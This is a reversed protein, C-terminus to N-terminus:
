REENKLFFDVAIELEFAKGRLAPPITAQAKASRLMAQAADDLVARGAGKKVGLSSLAGDEGIAIRLEVRGEWNNDLAIRPYKKYRRAIDMLELRYRAVSGPDPGSAAATPQSAPRPEARAVAAPAAPVAPMAHVPEAAQRTVEIGPIPAPSAPVTARAPAPLTTAVPEPRPRVAAQVPQEIGPPAAEAVKLDALRANLSPAAASSRQADQLWPLVFLLGLHLALSGAVAWLLARRGSENAYFGGALVAAM